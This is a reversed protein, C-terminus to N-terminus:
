IYLYVYISIRMSLFFSLFFLYMSTIIVDVARTLLITRRSDDTLETLVFVLLSYM